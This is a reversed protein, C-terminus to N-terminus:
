SMLVVKSLLILSPAFHGGSSSSASLRASTRRIIELPRAFGLWEYVPNSTPKKLADISALGVIVCISLSCRSIMGIPTSFIGSVTDSISPKFRAASMRGKKISESLCFNRCLRWLSM